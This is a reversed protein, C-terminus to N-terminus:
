VFRLGDAMGPPTETVPRTNKLQQRQQYKSEANQRNNLLSTPLPEIEPCRHTPPPHPLVPSLPFALQWIEGVSREGPRQGNSARPAMRLTCFSYLRNRPRWLGSHRVLNKRNETRNEGTLPSFRCSVMDLFEHM